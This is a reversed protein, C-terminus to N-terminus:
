IHRMLEERLTETLKNHETFEKSVLMKDTYNNGNLVTQKICDDITSYNVNGHMLLVLKNIWYITNNINRTIISKIALNPELEESKWNKILDFDNFDSIPRIAIKDIHENSMLETMSFSDTWTPPKGDLVEIIYIDDDIYFGTASYGLTSCLGQVIRGLPDKTRIFVLGCGSSM